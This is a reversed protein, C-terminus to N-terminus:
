PCGTFDRPLCATPSAPREVAGSDVGYSGESVGNVPVVLFYAGESLPSLAIQTAGGTGCQRPSPNAFAGLAGEYIAYDGDGASCSNGWELLLQGGALKDITLPIGTRGDPVRGAPAASACEDPVGDGDLDDSINYFIDALDPVANSNCDALPGDFRALFFEFDSADVSADGNLDMMECGAALEAGETLCEQLRQFDDLDVDGDLDGDGLDRIPYIAWTRNAPLNFIRRTEGGPWIVDFRDVRTAQDLGFHLTLESQSKYSNGAMVVHRQSLTGTLALATAGIAFTNSDRGVIRLRIWNSKQGERNIYLEIRGPTNVTALDLDGDGDVDAVAAGYTDASDDLGLQPALDQCPFSGTHSYLRNPARMNAVFLDQEGDNDHDYFVAGWGVVYSGVGASESTEIFRGTPSNEYLPNGNVTNTAYLDPLLDGNFDGVAVGMSDMCAGTRTYTTVDVFSGAQNEWMLNHLPEVCKDNSIYLDDDGDQDFDVWVSQFTLGDVSLGVGDAVDTFIGGGLNRFLRSPVVVPEAAARNGVFVDIWGDGDYDSWSAGAGFGVDGVGAAATMDAFTFGDDNRYLRNAQGWRTIYLDLDGDGDADAATVGSMASLPPIGCTASRDLFQGTGDNEYVGVVGSRAGLTVLDPDGDNDLDAFALGYGYALTSITTYDVGRALAESTSPTPQASLPGAATLLCIGVACRVALEEISSPQHPM